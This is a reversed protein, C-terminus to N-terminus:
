LHLQTEGPLKMRGKIERIQEQTVTLNFLMLQTIKGKFNGGGLTLIQVGNSDFNATLNKHNVINGDIWLKAEATTKNYSLGVFTWGKEALTGTLGNSISPEPLTLKLKAHNVVLTMGKYQLFTTEANNDYTYLWFLITISVGIDLESNSDSFTISGAPSGPFFYSGNQTGDPGLSLHVM